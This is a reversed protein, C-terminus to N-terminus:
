MVAVLAATTAAVTSADEDALLLTYWGLLLLISLPQPAIPALLHVAAKRGFREFRLCDVEGRRCNLKQQMWGSTHLTYEGFGAIVATGGGTMTLSLFAVPVNSGARKVTVRPHVFGERRLTWEGAATRGTALSGCGAFTLNGFEFAGAGLTFSRSSVSDSKWILVGGAAPLSALTANLTSGM